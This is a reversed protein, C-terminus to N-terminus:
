KAATRRIVPLSMSAKKESLKAIKLGPIAIRVQTIPGM